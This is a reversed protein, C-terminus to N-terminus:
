KFESLFKGDIMRNNKVSAIHHQPVYWLVQDYVRSIPDKTVIIQTLKFRGFMVEIIDRLVTVLLMSKPLVIYPTFDPKLGNDNLISTIFQTITAAPNKDNLDLTVPINIVRVNSIGEFVPLEHRMLNLIIKEKEPFPEETTWFYNKPPYQKFGKKSTDSTKKTILVPKNSM